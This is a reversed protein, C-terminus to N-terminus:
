RRAKLYAVIAEMRRIEETAKAQAMRRAAVWKPYVNRRLALEREACEVMQAVSVPGPALPADHAQRIDDEDMEDVGSM